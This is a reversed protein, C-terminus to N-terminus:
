TPVPVLRVDAPATAWAPDREIQEAMAARAWSFTRALAADLPVVMELGLEGRAKATSPVYYNGAGAPASPRAHVVVPLPAPGLRSAMTAADAISCAVESGVNYARGPTGRMLVTWLWVALDAAYMWSRVTTGDGEVEIPRSAVADRLFNGIAFHEDLPLHPGVFSFCRAVTAGGCLAEATRKATAYASAAPAFPGDERVHSTSTGYVAGSSILLFPVAGSSAAADITHATGAVITEATDEPSAPGSSSAAGCVVADFTGSVPLGRRVDARVLEVPWTTAEPMRARCRAPDRTVAVARLGLSLRRDAAALTSLLWWGFFGTAGTLLLRAGRLERWVDDTRDVVDEVDARAVDAPAVRAAAPTAPM